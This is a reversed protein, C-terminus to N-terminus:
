RTSSGARCAGPPSSTSWCRGAASTPAALGHEDRGDLPPLAFDPAPKGILASPLTSPDRTLGIALFVGVLPSCRGAPPPVAALPAPAPPPSRGADM